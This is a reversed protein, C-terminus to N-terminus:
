KQAVSGSGSFRSIDLLITRKTKIAYKRIKEAYPTTSLNCVCFDTREIMDAIVDFDNTSNESNARGVYGVAHCPPCLIANAGNPDESDESLSGGGALATIHVEHLARLSVSANVLAFLFGSRAYMQEVYINGVNYTCILFDMIHKFCVLSDYTAEGLAFLGCTRKGRKQKAALARSYRRKMEERITRCGHQLIQRARERGVAIVNGAEKLTCGDNVKQFILQENENMLSSAELIAAKTERTTLSIELTKEGHVSLNNTDHLTDYFYSIIHTSSQIIWQLMKKHELTPDNKKSEPINPAVIKDSIYFYSREYSRMNEPSSYESVFIITVKQPYQTRIKLVELLFIYSFVGKPYILFDVAKHETVLRDVVAHIRSDMDLDYVNEHGIFSCVAM